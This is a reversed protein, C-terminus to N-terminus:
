ADASELAAPGCSNDIMARWNGDHGERLVTTAISGRQFAEGGCM